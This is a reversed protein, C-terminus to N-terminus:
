AAEVDNQCEICTEAHPIVELRGAVIAAGCRVCRGYTGEAIRDLAADIQDMVRRTAAATLYAVPDITPIARPELERIIDQRRDLEAELLRRAQALEGASMTTGAPRDTRM